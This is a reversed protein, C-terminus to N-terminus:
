DHSKRSKLQILKALNNLSAIAMYLPQLHGAAHLETLAGPELTTLKEENVLEYGVMRHQAGNDLTVDMSFPELLNYREVSAFFDGAAQHAEHLDGLLGAIEELYPTPKGEEDFCAAGDGGRAVRPHDMDIHVQPEADEGSPRGILFPQIRMALPRALANWKGDVLFLNEGQEFGMLALAGVSGNAVDRQFLIPYECALERFEAPLAVSAMVADGFEASARTKIRVDGHEASNLIQHNSM